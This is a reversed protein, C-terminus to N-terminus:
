KVRFLSHGRVPHGDDSLVSWAILYTGAKLGPKLRLSLQAAMGSPPPGLQVVRADDAKLALADVSAADASRGPPLAVVRFTSFRLNVPESFRLQISRPAAVTVAASPSVVTVQTHALASSMASLILCFLLRFM